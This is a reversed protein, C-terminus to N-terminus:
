IVGKRAQSWPIDRDVRPEGPLGLVREGLINRQIEDSGGRISMSPATIFDIHGDSDDLMGEPGRADKATYAHGKYSAVKRLKAGSGAPGPEKSAAARDSTWNGALDAAHIRMARDRRVVDAFAGADRLERLWTPVRAGRVKGEGGGREGGASAREHALVTMAVKWGDGIAGIRWTDPVRADALFVESFHKDGNMQVLPRVEVGPAAMDVGFMTLGAHKPVDPDTRALLLGWRAWMARSTWVKQGELVWEDGDRVARLGLNALDSGAEPESFMQCWIESGDAIGRLWLDRQADTGWQLLTPGAMGLGIMYPYLDPVAFERLVRGITRADTPEADRGGYRKPWTPTAWGGDVAAALYRRGADLDDSGAGMTSMRTNETRRPLADGLADLAGRVEDDTLV